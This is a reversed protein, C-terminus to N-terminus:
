MAACAAASVALIHETSMKEWSGFGVAGHFVRSVSFPTSLRGHGVLKWATALSGLVSGLGPGSSTPRKM